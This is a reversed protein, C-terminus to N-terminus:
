RILCAIVDGERILLYHKSEVYVEVAAKEKFVVTVDKVLKESQVKPGIALVRALYPHKFEDPLVLSTPCNDNGRDEGLLYDGMPELPLMQETM